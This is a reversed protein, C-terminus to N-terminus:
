PPNVVHGEPLSSMGSHGITRSLVSNETVHYSGFRVMPQNTSFVTEPDM